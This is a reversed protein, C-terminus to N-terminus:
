APTPASGQRTLLAAAANLARRQDPEATAGERELAAIVTAGLLDAAQESAGFVETARLAEGVTVDTRGNSRQKMAGHSVGLHGGAIRLSIGLHALLETLYTDTRM